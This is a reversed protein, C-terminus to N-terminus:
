ACPLDLIATTFVPIVSHTRDLRLISTRAFYVILSMPADNDGLHHVVKGGEPYADLAKCIFGTRVRKPLIAWYLANVRNFTQRNGGPKVTLSNPQFPRRHDYDFHLNSGIAGSRRGPSYKASKPGGSIVSPDPSSDDHRADRKYLM